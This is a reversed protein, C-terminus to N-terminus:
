PTAPRRCRSGCLGAAAGCLACSAHTPQPSRAHHRLARLPADHLHHASQADILSLDHPGGTPAQGCQAALRYDTAGRGGCLPCYRTYHHSRKIQREAARGTYTQGGCTVQAAITAVDWGIGRDACVALIRAGRGARHEQLRWYWRRTYGVYHASAKKGSALPTHFHLIYVYGANASHM